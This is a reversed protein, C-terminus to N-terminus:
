SKNKKIELRRRIKFIYRKLFPIKVYTVYLKQYLVEMSFNKQKKGRQLKQIEKYESKQMKKRIILYAILILLFAGVTVGMIIYILQNSM